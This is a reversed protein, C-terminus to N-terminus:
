HLEWMVLCRVEPHQEDSAAALFDCLLYFVIINKTRLPIGELLYTNLTAQLCLHCQEAKRIYRQHVVATFVLKQFSFLTKRHMVSVYLSPPPFLGSGGLNEWLTQISTGSMELLGDILLVDTPKLESCFFITSDNRNNDACLSSYAPTEFSDACLKIDLGTCNRSIQEESTTPRLWHM